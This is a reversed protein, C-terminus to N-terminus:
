SVFLGIQYPAIDLGAAPLNWSELCHSCSVATLSVHAYKGTFNSIDNKPKGPTLQQQEYVESTPRDLQKKTLRPCEDNIDVPSEPGESASGNSSSGGAEQTMAHLRISRFVVLSFRIDQQDVEHQDIVKRAPLGISSDYMCRIGSKM